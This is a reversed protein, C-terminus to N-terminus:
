TRLCTLGGNVEEEELSRGGVSSEKTQQRAEMSTHTLVQTHMM